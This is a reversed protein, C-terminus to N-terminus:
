GAGGSFVGDGADFAGDATRNCQSDKEYEDEGENKRNM